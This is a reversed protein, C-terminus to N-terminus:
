RGKGDHETGFIFIPKKGVLAVTGDFEKDLPTEPQSTPRNEIRSVLPYPKFMALPVVSGLTSNMKDFYSRSTMDSTWWLDQDFEDESDLNLILKEFM